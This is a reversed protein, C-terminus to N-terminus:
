NKVKQSNSAKPARVKTTASASKKNARLAASSANRLQRNAHLQKRDERLEAKTSNYRKESKGFLTRLRSSHKGWKEVRTQNANPKKKERAIAADIQDATKDLRDMRITINKLLERDHQIEKVTRDIEKKTFKMNKKHIDNNGQADGQNFFCFSLAFAVVFYNFLPKLFM